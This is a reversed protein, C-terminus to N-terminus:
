SIATLLRGLFGVFPGLGRGCVLDLMKWVGHLVFIWMIWGLWRELEAEREEDDPTFDHNARINDDDRM